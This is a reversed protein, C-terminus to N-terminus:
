RDHGAADYRSLDNDGRPDRGGTAQLRHRHSRDTCPTKWRVAASVGRYSPFRASRGITPHADSAPSGTVVIAGTPPFCKDEAEFSRIDAEFRQPEVKPPAEREATQAAIEYSFGGTLLVIWLWL